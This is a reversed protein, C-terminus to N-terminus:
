GVSSYGYEGGDPQGGGATQETIVRANSLSIGHAGAHLIVVQGSSPASTGDNAVAAKGPVSVALDVHGDDDLDSVQFAFGFRDGDAPVGPMAPTNESYEKVTSTAVGSKAGHFVYFAGATSAGGATTGSNSVVLSPTTDGHFKITALRFGFTDSDTPSDPVGPSSESIVQRRTNSIGRANGRFIEVLGASAASSVSANPAGAAVDAYGDHNLDTVALSFGLQGGAGPFTNDGKVLVSNTGVLKHGNGPLLLVAGLENTKGDAGVVLDVRGDGTVDGFALAVGLDDEAAAIGAVRSTNLTLQQPAPANTGMLRGSGGYLVDVKGAASADGVTAGPVGVALDSRGDGNIDRAALAWGFNDVTQAVGPVGHADGETFVQETSARLGVRSGYLVFVAGAEDPGGESMYPAGIALDAYGDGNFDGTALSVGFDGETQPTGAFGRLGPAIEVSGRGSYSVLVAGAHTVGNVPALPASFAVDPRGDGDFDARVHPGAAAAPSLVAGPALGVAAAALSVAALSPLVRM